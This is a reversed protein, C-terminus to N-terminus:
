EFVFTIHELRSHREYAAFLRRVSAISGALVLAHMAKGFKPLGDGVVAAAVEVGVRGV